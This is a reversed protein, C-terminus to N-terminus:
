LKMAKAIVKDRGYIDSLLQVEGNPTVWNTFYLVYVPFPEDLKIRKNKKTRELNNTRQASWGKDKHMLYEALEMPTELRLCGHSYARVDKPFLHKSPTDHIYVNHKNPFLFKVRGLANNKDPNQRIYYKFTRPSVANWNVSWPDVKRGGAFLDMNEGALYGPNRKLIPLIEKTAISFPVNWYPSFEIYRMTSTFVPTRHKKTGVMIKKELVVEDHNEVIYLEFSPINAVIHREGLNRPLWRWRELNIALQQVRTALPINLVNLTANGVVGDATLNHQTQFAKVADALAQDFLQENVVSDTQVYTYFAVESNVDAVATISSVDQNISHDALALEAVPAETLLPLTDTQIGNFKDMLYGEARLRQRLKAVRENEVGVKLAKGKPVRVWKENTKALNQYHAYTQQLQAYAPHQPRIQMLFAELQDRQLAAMLDSLLNTPQRYLGWSINLRTPDIQGFHLHQTLRLVADTLLLELDMLFGNYPQEKLPTVETLLYYLEKIKDLHYNQPNLGDTYSNEISQILTGLIPQFQGNRVWIPTYGNQEYFPVIAKTMHIPQRMLKKQRGDAIEHTLKFLLSNQVFVFQKEKITSFIQNEALLNRSARHIGKTTLNNRKTQQPKSQVKGNPLRYWTLEEDPLKGKELEQYLKTLTQQQLADQLQVLLNDALQQIRKESPSAEQNLNVKLLYYAYQFAADTLLIDLKNTLEYNPTGSPIYVTKLETYLQQIAGLHYDDNFPSVKQLVQLLTDANALQNEVNYWLPQCNRQTYFAILLQPYLLTEHMLRQAADDGFIIWEYMQDCDGPNNSLVTNAQISTTLLLFTCGLLFYQTAQKM